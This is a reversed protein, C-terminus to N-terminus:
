RIDVPRRVIRVPDHHAGPFQAGERAVGEIGRAIRVGQRGDVAVPDPDIGFEVVVADGVDTEVQGIQDIDIQNRAEDRDGVAVVPDPHGGRRVHHDLAESM